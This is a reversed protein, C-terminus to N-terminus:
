EDEEPEELTEEDKTSAVLEITYGDFDKLLSLIVKEEDDVIIMGNEIDLVGCVKLKVTTSKKYSFNSAM